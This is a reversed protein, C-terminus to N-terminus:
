IQIENRLNYKAFINVKKFSLQEHLFKPFIVYIGQVSTIGDRKMEIRINPLIFKM